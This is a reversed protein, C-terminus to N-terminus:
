CNPVALSPACTILAVSNGRPVNRRASCAGVFKKDLDVSTVTIKSLKRPSVADLSTDNVFPAVMNPLAPQLETNDTLASDPWNKRSERHPSEYLVTPEPKRIIDPNNGFGALSLTFTARTTGVSRVTEMVSTSAKPLSNTDIAGNDNEAPTCRM